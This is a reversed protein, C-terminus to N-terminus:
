YPQPASGLSGSGASAAAPRRLRYRQWLLFIAPIVLLTLATATVMGGVMPAAIRRMVESGTGSGLLIPLLGAIITAVTMAKPRLRLLAGEVVSDELDQPTLARGSAAAEGRRRDLAINLYLLMVIATEVAVGGLAIFGVAVAISLNYGLWWLLWIGGALAVPLSTLVMLVEATRGFTLWLMLAILVVTLPAVVELRDRVRELYEFQGSWAIAYGPQLKVAAAVAAKAEAVYGGLDRGAIDVFVWGNLRANETRIM